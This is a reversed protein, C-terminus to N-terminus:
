ATNLESQNDESNLPKPSIKLGTAASSLCALGIIMFYYNCFAQKSLSFFVLYVFCASLAWGATSRDGRWLSIGCAALACVFSLQWPTVYGFWQFLLAPFSLSDPRFPQLFQWIVVSRFFDSPNWIAMPIILLTAVCLTSLIWRVWARKGSPILMLLLFPMWIMTQKSALMIGAAFGSCRPAKMMTWAFVSACFVVLPETWSQEIVFFTRPSFLYLAALGRGLLGPSLMSFILGSLGIALLSAWRVDGFLHAPLSIFLGLPFYPYGYTVKGNEVVGEGYYHGHAYINPFHLSYPNEARILAEASNKQFYYVDIAPEPSFRIMWAGLLFFLAIMTPTHIRGLVANISLGSGAIFAALVLGASFIAYQSLTCKLYIGPPTLQLQVFQVALAFGLLIRLIRPPCVWGPLRARWVAFFSVGVAIAVIFLGLPHFAGNNTQVAQAILTAIFIGSASFLTKNGGIRSIGSDDTQM